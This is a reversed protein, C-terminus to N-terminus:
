IPTEEEAESSSDADEEHEEGETTDGDKLTPDLEAALLAARPQGKVAYFRIIQRLPNEELRFADTVRVAKDAVLTRIFAAQADASQGRKELLAGFFSLYPNPDAAQAAVTLKIAEGTRGASALSLAELAAMMENDAGNIARVRETLKTWLEGRAGVIRESLWVAQWRARRTVMRNGMIQALHNLAEEDMKKEALLQVLEILNTEDEPFLTLLQRRYSIAADFEMFASATEAALRLAEAPNLTNEMEAGEQKARDAAYAKLAPWSALEAAAEERTEEDSLAVMAQLFKLGLKADGRGFALRALGVLAPAHYRELALERTFAAELLQDAALNRGDSRLMQVAMTLREMSPANIFATSMASEIGVFRRLGTLAKAEEGAQLELRLSMLRLWPPRAYRHNIEAKISDIISQAAETQHRAILYDLYEKQWRIRESPPESIKYGAEQDLAEEAEDMSWTDYLKATYDYDREYSSLPSSRKILMAYFPGLQSRAVLSEEILVEPLLNSDHVAESLKYFFQAQAIEAQPSITEEDRADDRGERFSDALARIMG